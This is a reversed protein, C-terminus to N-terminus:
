YTHFADKRQCEQGTQEQRGTFGEIQFVVGFRRFVGATRFDGSARIARIARNTRFAGVTGVPGVPRVIRRGYGECEVPIKGTKEEARGNPIVQHSYLIQGNQSVLPFHTQNPESQAEMM